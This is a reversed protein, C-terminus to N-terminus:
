TVAGGVAGGAGKGWLGKLFGGGGAKKTAGFWNKAGKKAGEFGAKAKDLFNTAPATNQLGKVKKMGKIGTKWGTGIAKAGKLLGAGLQEWGFMYVPYEEALARFTEWDEPSLRSAFYEAAEPTMNEAFYYMADMHKQTHEESMLYALKKGFM